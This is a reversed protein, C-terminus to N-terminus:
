NLLTSFWVNEDEKKMNEMKLFLLGVGTFNKGRTTFLRTLSEYSFSGGRVMLATAKNLMFVDESNSAPADLSSRLATQCYDKFRHTIINRYLNISQHNILNIKVSSLILKRSASAEYFHCLKHVSGLGEKM